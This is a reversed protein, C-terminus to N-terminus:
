KDKPEIVDGCGNDGYMVRAPGHIRVAIGSRTELPAMAIWERGDYVDVKADCSIRSATLSVTVPEHTGRQYFRHVSWPREISEVRDIDPCAAGVATAFSCVAAFTWLLMLRM